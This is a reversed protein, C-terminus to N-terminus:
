DPNVHQCSLPLLKIPMESTCNWSITQDKELTPTFVLSRDNLAAGANIFTVTVVANTAVTVRAFNQDPRQYFGAEEATAPIKRAQLYYEGVKKAAQNGMAMAGVMRAKTLYANYQPIAVTALAWVFYIMGFIALLIGIVVDASMESKKESRVVITSAILDHLAQKKQTFPQILYGILM